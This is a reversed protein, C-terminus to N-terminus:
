LRMIFHVTQFPPQNEMSGGGGETPTTASHDHAGDTSSEDSTGSFPGYWGTNNFFEEQTTYSLEHTHDDVSDISPSHAHSALQDTAVTVSNAGGTAGSQITGSPVNRPFRSRLDPTGNNGDCLVWGSPINSPDGHFINVFFRPETQRDEQFSQQPM